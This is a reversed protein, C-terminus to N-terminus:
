TGPEILRESTSTAIPKAKGLAVADPCPVRLWVKTIYENPFLVDSAETRLAEPDLEHVLPDAVLAPLEILWNCTPHDPCFTFGNVNALEVSAAPSYTTPWMMAKAPWLVLQVTDSNPGFAMPEDIPAAAVPIVEADSAAAALKVVAVTPKVANVAAGVLAATNRVALPVLTARAAAEAKLADVEPASVAKLAAGVLAPTNKVAVPVLAAKTAMEPNELELETAIVAKLAAGVEAATKRVIV